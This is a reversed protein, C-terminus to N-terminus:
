KDAELETIYNKFPEKNIFINSLINKVYYLSYLYFKRFYNIPLIKKNKEIIALREENMIVSMSTTIQSPHIRFATSYVDISMIKYNNKLIKLFYDYDSAANYNVDFYGINYIIEKSLFTGPQSMFTCHGFNLLNKYNIKLRKKVKIIENNEDVCILNFSVGDIDENNEFKENVINFLNNNIYFDDSNLVTWIDGKVLRLGKNIADYMNRDKGSEFYTIYKDYKQIINITNDESGGDIIIIEFNNYNQKIISKLTYELYRESNLVPIIVSIKKM